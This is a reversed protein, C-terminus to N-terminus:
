CLAELANRPLVRKLIITEFPEDRPTINEVSLLLMSLQSWVLGVILCM